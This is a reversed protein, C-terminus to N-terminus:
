VVIYLIPLFVWLMRISTVYVSCLRTGYVKCHLVASTCCVITRNVCSAHAATRAITTHSGCDHVVCSRCCQWTIQPDQNCVTTHMYFIYQCLRTCTRTLHMCTLQRLSPIHLCDKCAELLQLIVHWAHKLQWARMCMCSVHKSCSTRLIGEDFICHFCLWSVKALLGIHYSSQHCQKRHWLMRCSTWQRHHRYLLCCCKMALTSTGAIM